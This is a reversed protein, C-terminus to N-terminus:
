NEGKDAVFAWGARNTETIPIIRIPPMSIQDVAELKQVFTRDRNLWFTKKEIGSANSYNAIELPTFKMYDGSHVSNKIIMGDLDIIVNTNHIEGNAQQWVITKDGVNLMLDTIFLSEINNLTEIKVTLDTLEPIFNAITVEEWLYEQQNNITITRKDSNNTSISITAQGILGKKVRASLSLPKGPTVIITQSISSSPWLAIQSGSKAGHTLSEASTNARVTGTVSWVTPVRETNTAYGVSNHLLNSGGTTQITNTINNINQTIQTYNETIRDDLQDTRSVISKIEQNQKDVKIETNYITKIIGGARAYDTQEKTPAIGNITEKIGQSIELKIHTIVIPWSDAGNSVTIRDGIQYYGHGETEAEFPYFEFGKISNLLPMLMTERNDDLLENNAIKVDTLGNEKFEIFGSFDDEEALYIDNFIGDFDDSYLKDTGRSIFLLLRYKHYSEPDFVFSGNRNSLGWKEFLVIRKNDSKRFCDVVVGTDNIRDSVINGYAITYTRDSVMYQTPLLFRVSLWPINNPQATIRISNKGIPFSAVNGNSPLFCPLATIDLINRNSPAIINVEDREAVNDEQPTRALVLANIPGYKPKFKINKLHDYTWDSVPTKQAPQFHLKDNKIIAMTGTAGAIENLIDRYTLNSIKAYPDEAIVQSANPLNAVSEDITLGRRTALQTAINAITNPFILDGAIYPIKSLAILSDFCKLTTTGKELDVQQEVVQFEGLSLEEWINNTQNTKTSTKLEITRGVLDYNTGLLKVTAIGVASGFLYGDSEIALSILGDNDSIITTNDVVVKSRLSKTSQHMAQKFSDSVTLM